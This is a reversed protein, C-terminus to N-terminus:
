KKDLLDKKEAKTEPPKPNFKFSATDASYKSKDLGSEKWAAEIAEDVKKNADTEKKQLDAFQDQLQKGANQLQNFRDRVDAEQKQVADLAHEAKLIANEATMSMPVPQPAPPKADEARALLLASLLYFVAITIQKM